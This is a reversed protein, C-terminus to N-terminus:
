AEAEQGIGLTKAAGTVRTKMDDIRTLVPLQDKWKECVTVLEDHNTVGRKEAFYLLVDKLKSANKLEEPMQAKGEKVQVALDGLKVYDWDDVFPEAPKANAKPEDSKAPEVPPTKDHGNAGNTGEAKQAKLEDPTPLPPETTSRIPTVNDAKPPEEPKKDTTAQVVPPEPATASQQPRRKKRKTPKPAPEEQEDDDEDLMTQVFELVKMAQEGDLGTVTLQNIKDEGEYHVLVDENVTANFSQMLAPM